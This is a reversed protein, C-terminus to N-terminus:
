EQGIWPAHHPFCGEHRVTDPESLVENTARHVSAKLAGAVQMVLAEGRQATVEGLRSLSGGDPDGPTTSGRPTDMVSSPSLTAASSSAGSPPRRPPSLSAVTAARLLGIASLTTGLPLLLPLLLLMFPALLVIFPPILALAAGFLALTIGPEMLASRTAAAIPQAADKLRGQMETLSVGTAGRARARLGPLTENMEGVLTTAARRLRLTPSRIRSPQVAPSPPSPTAAPPHLPAPRQGNMPAVTRRSRAVRGDGGSSSAGPSEEQAYSLTFLNSCCSRLVAGCAGTSLDLHYGQIPM